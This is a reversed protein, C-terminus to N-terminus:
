AAYLSLPRSRGAFESRHRGPQRSRRSDGGHPSARRVQPWSSTLRRGLTARRRALWDRWPRGQRWPRHIAALSPHLGEGSVIPLVDESALAIRPRLDHYASLGHPVYTNVTDNGGFLNVVVLFNSSGAGAALARRLSLRPALAASGLGLTLGSLLSRRSLGSPARDLPSHTM